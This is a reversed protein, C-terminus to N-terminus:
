RSGRGGFRTSLSYTLPPLVVAHLKRVPCQQTLEAFGNGHGGTTADTAAGVM